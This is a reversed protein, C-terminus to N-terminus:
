WIKYSKIKDFIFSLVEENKDKELEAVENLFETINVKKRFSNKLLIDQIIDYYKENEETKKYKDRRFLARAVLTNLRVNLKHYRFVKADKEGEPEIMVWNGKEEKLLIGQFNYYGKIGMFIDERYIKISMYKQKNISFVLSHNIKINEGGERKIFRFDLNPVDCAACYLKSLDELNDITILTRVFEETKLKDAEIATISDKYSYPLMEQEIYFFQEIFAVTDATTVIEYDPSVVIKEQAFCSYSGISLSFLFLYFNFKNM